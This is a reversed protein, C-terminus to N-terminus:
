LVRVDCCVWHWLNRQQLVSDPVIPARTWLVSKKTRDFQLLFPEKNPVTHRHLIHGTLDMCTIVHTYPQSFCIFNRASDVALGYLATWLSPFTKVLLTAFFHRQAGLQSYAACACLADSTRVWAFPRFTGGRPTWSSTQLKSCYKWTSSFMCYCLIIQSPAANSLQVYTVYWHMTYQLTVIECVIRAMAWYSIACYLVDCYWAVYCLMM